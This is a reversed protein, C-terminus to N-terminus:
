NDDKKKWSQKSYSTWTEVLHNYKKDLIWPKYDNAPNNARDIVSQHVRPKGYKSIDWDRVQQPYLKTLMTGRSDEMFSDADEKVEVDYHNYLLLGKDIAMETMWILPIDSLGHAHYGGGVHTHMGSFWVQTLTQGDEIKTDWIKPLFNRREDDLALAHYAHKVSKSLSLDHFKHQLFPIKNFIADTGPIPLGLASVTDYCGLFEVEAWINHHKKIFKKAEDRRADPNKIKYIKFARKILEPRSQPLIGFYHIFSSLSRVTAAGRSFGFLFIKDGIKYNDFIFRYCELINRSIGMGAINGTLKNWGTGLGADYFTVQQNSRNEIISFLKYINTNPGKGGEQGTGDSFIVINKSM